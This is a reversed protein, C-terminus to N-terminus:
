ILGVALRVAWTVGYACLLAAVTIKNAPGSKFPALETIVAWYLVPLTPFLPHYGFAEGFDLKIASLVARTMGCTPCPIGLTEYFVCGLGLWERVLILAACGLTVLIVTLPRRPKNM